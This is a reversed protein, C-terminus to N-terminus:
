FSLLHFIFHMKQFFSCLYWKGKSWRDWPYCRLKQQLGIRGKLPWWVSTEQFLSLNEDGRDDKDDLPNHLAMRKPGCYCPTHDSWKEQRPLGDELLSAARHGRSLAPSPVGNGDQWKIQLTVYTRDAWAQDDTFPTPSLSVQYLAARLPLHAFRDSYMTHPPVEIAKLTPPVCCHPSAPGWSWPPCQSFDNKM